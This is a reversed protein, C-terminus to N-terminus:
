MNIHDSQSVASIKGYGCLARLASDNFKLSIKNVKDSCALAIRFAGKLTALKQRM